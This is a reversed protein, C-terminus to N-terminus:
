VVNESRITRWQKVNESHINMGGMVNEPHIPYRDFDERWNPGPEKANRVFHQAVDNWCLGLENERYPDAGLSFLTEATRPCAYGGPTNQDERYTLYWLIGNGRADVFRPVEKAVLSRIFDALAADDGRVIGAVLMQRM